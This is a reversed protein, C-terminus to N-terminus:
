SRGFSMLTIDDNQPRGDAHRKVDALIRRGLESADAPGQSIFERLQELGYLESEHNMAESVGDTYIVVTEGPALTRKQVQFTFNDIVGLPIGISEGPFEEVKGDSCRIIPSMHGANVVQMKNSKLDIVTLVFTVFRGEVARNCMHANIRKVADLADTVFQMTSQVVSSLRSMVLSAPVGKGAVDGFALCIKRDNLRIVDFYDGGVAQAAEYSAYFDYGPVQPMEEPLLAQQVSRAISMEGDQKLKEMHSVLLRANDYSVAAQGAVATLLELDDNGFRHIPNQTDINIAGMPEGDLGLLPVCMMSRITLSSISESADFRSDSAADASLIGAKEQLVRNLITRSIKVTEDLENQRHKIAKPIMQGTTEDKLLIVGRDAHPFVAFLTDLIKPLLSDLDVTGALDRSIEVVAKLKAEPRVELQGYTGEPKVHNVFLTEDEDGETVDLVFPGEPNTPASSSPSDATQFRALLPGFKIRDDERLPTPESITKGNVTTGNGSGLDEILYEGEKRTIRAHHRSVMTSDLQITCDPHRGISNQEELLPYEVAEGGKLLILSAMIHGSLSVGVLPSTSPSM